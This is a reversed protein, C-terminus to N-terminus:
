EQPPPIYVALCNSCNFLLWGECQWWKVLGPIGTHDGPGGAAPASFRELTQVEKRLARNEEKFTHVPHGPPATKAETHDLLGDLAMTHIDCLKLVEEQTAGYSVSNLLRVREHFLDVDFMEQYDDSFTLPPRSPSACALFVLLGLFFAALKGWRNSKLVLNRGRFLTYGFIIISLDRFVVVAAFWWPLNRYFVLTLVVANILLKDAVPDLMKGIKTEERRSRAYYGDFCDTLAAVVMLGFAVCFWLASHATDVTLTIILFLLMLPIRGLTLSQVFLFELTTKRDM